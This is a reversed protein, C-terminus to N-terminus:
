IYFLLFCLRCLLQFDIREEYCVFVLVLVKNFRVARFRRRKHLVLVYININVKLKILCTEIVTVNCFMIDLEM